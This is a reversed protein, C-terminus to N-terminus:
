IEGNADREKRYDELVKDREEQTACYKFEDGSLEYYHEYYWNRFEEANYVDYLTIIHRLNLGFEDRCLVIVYGNNQEM